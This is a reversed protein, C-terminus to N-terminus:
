PLSNVTRLPRLIRFMRFMGLGGGSSSSHFVEVWGTTVVFFDLKNWHEDLYANTGLLFGKAVIKVVMEFSFIYLAVTNFQNMFINRWKTLNAGLINIVM